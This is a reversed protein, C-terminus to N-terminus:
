RLDERQERTALEMTELLEVGEYTIYSLTAFSLVSGIRDLGVELQSAFKLFYTILWLFHSKDLNMKPDHETLKRLLEEVLGAYGTLLFDLTFEMLMESIDQWFCTKKQQLFGKVNKHRHLYSIPKLLLNKSYM